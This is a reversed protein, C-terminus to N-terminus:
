SGRRRRDHALIDWLMWVGVAAAGLFCLM